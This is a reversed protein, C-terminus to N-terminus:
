SRPSAGVSNFYNHMSATAEDTLEVFVRRADLPDPSRKVLGKQELTTLWRLATTAPVAAGACAASVSIRRQGLKAGFLDLLIDWAPDAFLASCLHEARARRERFLHRVDRETLSSPESASAPPPQAIRGVLDLASYLQERIVQTDLGQAQLSSISTQHM